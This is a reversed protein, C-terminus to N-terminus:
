FSLEVVLMPRFVLSHAQGVITNAGFRYTAVLEDLQLGVQLWELVTRKAQISALQVARYSDGTHQYQGGLKFALEYHAGLLRHYGAEIRAGFFGISDSVLQGNQGQIPTEVYDVAVGAYASFWSRTSFFRREIGLRISTENLHMTQQNPRSEFGDAGIVYKGTWLSALASYHSSLRREYELQGNLLTVGRDVVSSPSIPDTSSFYYSSISPGWALRLWNSQRAYDDYKLYSDFSSEKSQENRVSKVEFTSFSSFVGRDGERDIAAVRWFFLGALDTNWVFSNQMLVKEATLHSFEEDTGIQLVYANAGKVEEWNLEVAFRSSKQEGEKSAQVENACAKFSHVRDRGAPSRRRHISRPYYSQKEYRIVPRKLVPAEVKTDHDPPATEEIKPRSLVPVALKRSIEFSSPESVVRTQENLRTVRWYHHGKKEPQFETGTEDTLLRRWVIVEFDPDRSVEILTSAGYSDFSRWQFLVTEDALLIAEPEPSLLLPPRLEKASSLGSSAKIEIRKSRLHTISVDGQDVEIRPLGESPSQIKYSSAGQSVFRSGSVEIEMRSAKADAPAAGDAEQELGGKILEVRVIRDGAYSVGRLVLFSNPELKVIQGDTFKLVTTAEAMTAVEDGEYVEQGVSLDLWSLQMPSRFKVQKIASLVKAVPVSGVQKRPPSWFVHVDSILFWGEILLAFIAAVVLRRDVYREVNAPSVVKRDYRLAQYM